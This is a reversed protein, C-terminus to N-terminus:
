FEFAKTAAFGPLVPATADFVWRWAIGHPTRLGLRAQGGAGEAFIAAIRGGVKLQAEIPHPLKEIAGEVIIADVDSRSLLAAHDPVSAAGPARELATALRAPSSDCVATITVDPLQQLEAIIARGQRGAGILGVRVPAAFRVPEGPLLDPLLSIGTLGGLTQVLFSRRDSPM